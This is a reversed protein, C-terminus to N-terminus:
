SKSEQVAITIHTRQDPAGMVVGSSLYTGGTSYPVNLGTFQIYRNKQILRGNDSIFYADGNSMENIVLNCNANIVQEAHSKSSILFVNCYQAMNRLYRKRDLVERKDSLSSLQAIVVGNQKINPRVPTRYASICNIHRLNLDDFLHNVTTIICNTTYLGYIVIATNAALVNDTTTHGKQQSLSHEMQKVTTTLANITDCKITM